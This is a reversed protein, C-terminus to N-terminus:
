IGVSWSPSIESIVFLVARLCCVTGSTVFDEELQVYSFSYGTDSLQNQLMESADLACVIGCLLM